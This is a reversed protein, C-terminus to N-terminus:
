DQKQILERIREEPQELLEAIESINMGKEQKRRILERLIREEGQSIGDEWGEEWAQEREQRIHKERDYEYISVKKVEARNKELFEKLIGERICETISREVADSLSMELTYRRVRDAYEAYEALTRCAQMIEPNHGNNVNLMVAKLELKHEREEVTYLDSLYLEQRDPQPKQGNYFILFQPPPIRVKRTGYLNEGSTMASYLDSLYFLLRLPLNPSCTSQHEYLSLRSNDVLFSLDNQIGMYIANKLTNIELIEPDTYNKGSVANYLSLLEKRSDGFIMIFVSSKYERNPVPLDPSRKETKTKKTKEKKTKKM